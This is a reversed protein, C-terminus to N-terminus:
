LTLILITSAPHTAWSAFLLFVPIPRIQDIVMSQRRAGL